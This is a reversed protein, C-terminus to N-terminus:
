PATWLLYTVPLLFVADAYLRYRDNKQMFADCVFIVCLVANMAFMVLVALPKPYFFLLALLTFANSFLLLCVIRRSTGRGFLVAFSVQRDRVDRPYDYWSLILLNILALLAFACFLLYQQPGLPQGSATVSLLLVGCTYLVAVMIEKMWRLYRHVILYCLVLVALVVGGALAQQRIFTVMWGVFATGVVVAVLLLRFYRYHFRHRASSANRGIRRADRLHDITYIIWVTVGLAFLGQLLVTVHLLKAFFMACIVAGAAVDLSLLNLFRYAVVFARM